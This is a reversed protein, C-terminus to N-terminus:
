IPFNSPNILQFQGFPRAINIVFAQTALCIILTIKIPFDFESQCFSLTKRWFSKEISLLAIGAISANGSSKGDLCEDDSSLKRFPTVSLPRSPIKGSM